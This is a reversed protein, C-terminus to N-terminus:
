AGDHGEKAHGALELKKRTRVTAGHVVSAQWAKHNFAVVSHRHFPKALGQHGGYDRISPIGLGILEISAGVDHLRDWRYRDKGYKGLESSICQGRSLSVLVLFSFLDVVDLFSLLWVRDGSANDGLVSNKRVMFKQVM